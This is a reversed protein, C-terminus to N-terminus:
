ASLKKEHQSCWVMFYVYPSVNLVMRYYRIHDMIHKLEFVFVDMMQRECYEFLLIIFWVIKLNESQIPCYIYLSLSLVKNYLSYHHVAIIACKIMLMSLLYHECFEVSDKM